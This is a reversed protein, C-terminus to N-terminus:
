FRRAMWVTTLIAAAFPKPRMMTPRWPSNDVGAAELRMRLCRAKRPRSVIRLVLKEIELIALLAFGTGVVALGDTLGVPKADFLAQLPPSYTFALQLVVVVGVGILM